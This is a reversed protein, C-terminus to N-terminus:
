DPIRFASVTFNTRRQNAMRDSEYRPTGINALPFATPTSLTCLVACSPIKSSASARRSVVMADIDASGEMVGIKVGYGALGPGGGFLGIGGLASEQGIHAMFQSGREIGDNTEGADDAAFGFPQQGFFLGFIQVLHEDAGFVQEAQDVGNQINGLDFGAAHVNQCGAEPDIGQDVQAGVRGLGQELGTNNQFFM